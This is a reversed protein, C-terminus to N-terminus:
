ALWALLVPIDVLGLSGSFPVSKNASFPVSKNPFPTPPSNRIVGSGPHSVFWSLAVALRLLGSQCTRLAARRRPRESSRWCDFSARVVGILVPDASLVRRVAEQNAADIIQGIDAM